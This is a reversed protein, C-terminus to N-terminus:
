LERWISKVLLQNFNTIGSVKDETAKYHEETLYSYSELFEEKSLKYFDAMKELDNTFDGYEITMKMRRLTNLELQYTLCM